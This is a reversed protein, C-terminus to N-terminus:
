LASTLFKGCVQTPKIDSEEIELIFKIKEDKLILLDVKCFETKRSKQRSCFLPIHQWHSREEEKCCAPDKIIRTSPFSRTITELLNGIHQHLQHDMIYNGENIKM